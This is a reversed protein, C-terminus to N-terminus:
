WDEHDPSPATSAARRAATFAAIAIALLALEVLYGLADPVGAKRTVSLVVVDPWKRTDVGADDSEVVQVTHERPIRRGTYRLTEVIQKPYDTASSTNSPDLGSVADWNTVAPAVAFVVSIVIVVTWAWAGATRRRLVEHGACAAAAWLIPVVPVLYRPGWGFAAWSTVSGIAVVYGAVPLAWIATFVRAVPDIRRWVFPLTLLLLFVPSFVLLGRNPAGFLGLVGRIPDWSLLHTESEFRAVGPRWFRGSESTNLWLEPLLVVVMAGLGAGLRAVTPRAAAHRRRAVAVETLVFALLLTPMLTFRFLGAAGCLAGFAVSHWISADPPDALRRLSWWAAGAVFVACPMVDWTDKVYPLLITAVLGLAAWNLAARMSMVIRLALLLFLPLLMAFVAITAAALFKTMATPTLVGHPQNGILSTFAAAPLMLLKNGVDHVQYWDGDDGRGWQRLKTADRKSIGFYPLVQDDFTPTDVGFRGTQAVHVTAVLQQYTDRNGLRGNWVFAQFAVVAILFLAVPSSLGRPLRPGAV